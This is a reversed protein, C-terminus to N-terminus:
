SPVLAYLDVPSTATRAPSWARVEDRWYEHNVTTLVVGALWLALLVVGIATTTAKSSLVRTRLLRVGSALM